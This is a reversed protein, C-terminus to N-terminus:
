IKRLLSELFLQKLSLYIFPPITSYYRNSLRSPEQVLRYLWELGIRQAFRPARRHIGAYVLFAGGLGIMVAQIKDKHQAMWYEQKPCGLSVLVLGAGSDNVKQILERDETATLPRFPLPEMGAIQLRPFERNLRARMNDLVRPTSGVFFISIHRSPAQQALALLIDPGAVRNQNHIGLQRLMWVLPMGDPTVLDANALVAGFKQPYWYAEMLMHVNAVCVIKSKPGSAWGLIQKIQADFPLATVPSTILKKQPLLTTQEALVM